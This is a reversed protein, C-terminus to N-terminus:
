FCINAYASIPKGDSLKKIDKIGKILEEKDKKM